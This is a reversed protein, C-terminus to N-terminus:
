HKHLKSKIKEAFGKKPKEEGGQREPSDNVEKKEGPQERHVGAEELLRDAERGAGPNAADFDGGEAKVGTSKVYKEGTGEGHSESQPKEDSGGMAGGGLGPSPGAGAGSGGSGSKNDSPVPSPGSADDNAAGEAKQKTERVADHQEGTPADLPRDAGQQKQKPQSGSSPDGVVRDGANDAANSPPDNSAVRDTTQGGSPQANIKNEYNDGHSNETSTVNGPTTNSTTTTPDLNQGKTGTSVDSSRIDGGASQTYDSNNGSTSSKHTSLDGAAFENPQNNHTYDGNTHHTNHTMTDTMTDDSTNYNTTNKINSNNNSSGNLGDSTSTKLAGTNDVDPEDINGADYPEGRRVDGSEGSRPEQGSQTAPDSENGGFLLKSAQTALNSVTEM